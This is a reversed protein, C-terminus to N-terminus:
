SVQSHPSVSHRGGGLVQSFPSQIGPTRPSPQGSRPSHMIKPSQLGSPGGAQPSMQQPTPAFPPRQLRSQIAANLDAAAALKAPDQEKGNSYRIVAPYSAPTSFLGQALAPDTDDFAHVKFTARHHGGHKAHQARCGKAPIQTNASISSNNTNNWIKM